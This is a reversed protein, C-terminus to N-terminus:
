SASGRRALAAPLANLSISIVLIVGYAIQLVFTSVNFYTLASQLLFIDAAGVTAALFGGRGGGLGVGGLAVASIALLTFNSGVNPDASGILATLTLGATGGFLGTLVYSLFRVMAVPVGATYCARDDSGVAMLQEYYPLQKLGLWVLALALLPVISLHGSLSQIWRPVAGVPAPVLTLTLGTFLLYSGLTAVIPQIRVVVALFGNFAGAAAGVALAAPVIIWPSAVRADIILTQVVLANVLGMLPGVSVDIGGRGGLIVPMAAISAAILPAALGILTGWAAPAFRDSNLLVNVVLLVVFLAIAFATERRAMAM